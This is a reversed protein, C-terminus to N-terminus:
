ELWTFLLYLCLILYSITIDKLLNMLLINITMKRKFKCSRCHRPIESMNKVPFKKWQRVNARKLLWIKRM